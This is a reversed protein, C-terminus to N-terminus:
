LNAKQQNQQRKRLFPFAIYGVKILPPSILLVFPIETVFTWVFVLPVFTAPIPSTFYQGTGFFLQSYGYVAIAVMIAGISQSIVAAIGFSRFEPWKKSIVLFFLASVAMTVSFLILTLQASFLTFAESEAPLLVTPLLLGALVVGTALIFAAVAKKNSLKTKTLYGILFFVVFNAPVGAILSLLPDGHYLVDRIFIGIAAGTGGVWPGFLVAFVAPIFAAPWFAVGGLSFGFSTAYGVVFYLAACIAIVAFDFAKLNQV